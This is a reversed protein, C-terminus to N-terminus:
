CAERPDQGSLKCLRSRTALLYQRGPLHFCGLDVLVLLVQHSHRTLRTSVQVIVLNAKSRSCHISLGVELLIDRLM